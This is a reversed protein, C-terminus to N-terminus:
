TSKTKWVRQDPISIDQNNLLLKTIDVTASANVFIVYYYM